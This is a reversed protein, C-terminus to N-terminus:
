VINKPNCVSYEIANVESRFKPDISMLDNIVDRNYIISSHDKKLRAGIAKLTYKGTKLTLYVAIMRPLAIHRKATKSLITSRDMNHIEAVRDIITDFDLDRIPFLVERKRTDPLGIFVEPSIAIM